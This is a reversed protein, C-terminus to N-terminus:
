SEQKLGRRTANGTGVSYTIVKRELRGFLQQVAGADDQLHAPRAHPLGEAGAGCLASHRYAFDEVPHAVVAAAAPCRPVSRPTPLDDTM